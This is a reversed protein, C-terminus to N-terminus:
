KSQDFDSVLRKIHALKNYLYYFRKKQVCFNPNNQKLKQYERLIEENIDEYEKTGPSSQMKKAKLDFFPSSLTLLTDRLAHCDEFEATFDEVYLERQESSVITIYKTLYDPVESTSAGDQPIPYLERDDESPNPEVYSEHSPADTEQIEMTVTCTQSNAQNETFARKRTKNLPFTPHTKELLMPYKTTNSEDQLHEVTSSDQCVHDDEPDQTRAGEPTGRRSCSSAARHSSSLPACLPEATAAPSKVSTAAPERRAKNLRANSPSQVVTTLHSTKGKNLRPNAPPQAVMTLHSIKSKSLPANSPSQAVTTLHSVKGKNLRTNSPPQTVTTLHSMKGKNLRTNSPPQAVMTLHSIKGKKGRLSDVVASPFRGKKRPIGGTNSDRSSQLSKTAPAKRALVSALLQRDSENYGPWDRRVQKFLYDKLSYTFNHPNLVAVQELVKGITGKDKKHIGDKQLRVSLESIRYDKLALLHIVRDIYPQRYVSDTIPSTPTTCPSSALETSGHVSESIARGAGRIAVKQWVPAKIMKKLVDYSKGEAQITKKMKSGVTIKTGASGWCPLPTAPSGLLTAQLPAVRGQRSSENENPVENNAPNMSTRLLNPPFDSLGEVGQVQTSVGPLHTSRRLQYQHVAQTTQLDKDQRPVRDDLM